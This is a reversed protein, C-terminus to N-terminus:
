SHVGPRGNEVHFAARTILPAGPRDVYEVVQYDTRMSEPTITCSCYGREANHFRVFPNESLITDLNRPTALGNGGSSISTGVFETAVTREQPQDFDLKLDNVWNTHIDGTLVVPNSIRREDLFRLLRSRAVDYGGWQDMSYRRGAGPERDVRGMMVQQALINWTATSQQLGEMLWAEQTAGLMTTKPDIAAGELPKLGDGNPQDSRYQRTDLMEFQALRGFPIRRYLQMDPGTPVSTERLPMSEYYAQYANARRILFDERTVDREESIDAACNNDFEHDDWVVLWPCHAHAAALHTDMRYQAYRNRYHELTTIEPGSHKRIRKDQGAYEYIYDGLHVILDLDEQAMHELATFLGTEYHQCSAFAFRLRDPLAEAAPTTRTRGVPSVADGCHFRYFYWAAPQLGQMTVHVSHGLQPTALSTGRQVIDKFGADTALEWGVEYPQLPLGGGNLPDPALRTWLVMGDPSPDGSAVGMTFPDATFKPPEAVAGTSLKALWPIIALSAGARIFDRRNTAFERLLTPFSVAM